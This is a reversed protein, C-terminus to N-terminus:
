VLNYHGPSIIGNPDFIKKLERTTQWFPDNEDLYEQMHDVDLRYPLTNQERFLKHMRGICDRAAVCSAADTRNFSVSIVGEMLKATVMNLTMQLDFGFEETLVRVKEVGEVIVRSDMPYFPVAYIFGANSEDPELDDAPWKEGAKWYLSKLPGDTPVGASLGYLPAVASLVALKRRAGPLFRFASLLKRAFALRDDNLFMPRAIGKLAARIEKQAAKLMRRTGMLGAVASWAGFGEEDILEYVRDRLEGGEAHGEALLHEYVLPAMTDVTRYRNAIHAITQIIGARKLKAMANIFDGLRAPDQIKAIVSMRAEPKHMLSIGARTVIGYNSQSFLGDLSPGLGYPQIYTLVDDSIHGYGTRLIRGSGTVVELGSLASARWAFYGIGRELANGILSSDRGSGIVNLLLPLDNEVLYDYLEGQSVGPEIVAYAQEVNVDIIRNMGSLDVIATGSQPPLRSGLGWNKGRSIPHIPTMCDNAIAVIERVEASSAPKLVAPIERSSATVNMGYVGLDVPEHLVKEAGIAEAWRSIAKAWDAQM